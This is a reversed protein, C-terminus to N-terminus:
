LERTMEVMTRRFGARAFLRQAGANPEATWLVVRPLGRDRFWQLAADLMAQGVGGRRHESTVVLDHVFGARDRLEKWSLPEVGAYVYGIVEGGRDAVFIAVDSERLQTSLFGGYGEEPHDGPPLFRAPDFAHHVRMLHAGLRGLAAVDHTGARRVVTGAPLPTTIDM